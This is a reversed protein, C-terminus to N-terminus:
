AGSAFLPSRGFSRRTMPAESPPPCLDAWGVRYSEGEVGMDFRGFALWSSTPRLDPFSSTISAPTFAFKKAKYLGISSKIFQLCSTVDFAASQIQVGDFHAETKAGATALRSGCPADASAARPLFYLGPTICRAASLRERKGRGRAFREVSFDGLPPSISETIRRSLSARWSNEGSQGSRRFWASRIRLRRLPRARTPLAARRRKGDARSIPSMLSSRLRCCPWFLRQRVGILAMRLALLLAAGSSLNALTEGVPLGGGTLARWLVLVVAEVAVLAIIADVIWADPLFAAMVEGGRTRSAAGSGFPKNLQVVRWNLWGAFTVWALYPALLWAAFSSVQAVAVILVLISLWFLLLEYLAWDPRRM